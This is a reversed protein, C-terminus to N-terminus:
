KNTKGKISFLYKEEYIRIAPKGGEVGGLEKRGGRGDPDMRKQRESSILLSRLFLLLFIVFYFTILYFM